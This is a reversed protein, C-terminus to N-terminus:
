ANVWGPLVRVHTDEEKRRELAQALSVYGRDQVRQTKHPICAPPTPAASHVGGRIWRGESGRRPSRGVVVLIGRWTERAGSSVSRLHPACSVKRREASVITRTSVAQAQSVCVDCSIAKGPSGGIAKSKLSSLISSFSFADVADRCWREALM